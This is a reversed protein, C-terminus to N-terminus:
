TEVVDISTVKGGVRNITSTLTQIVTGVEDHQNEVIEVVVGASRSIATSRILIGTVPVTRVELATVVSGDGGRIIETVSTEALGHVMSDITEHYESDAGINVFNTGTTVIIGSGATILGRGPFYGDFTTTLETDDRGTTGTIVVDVFFDNFEKEAIFDEDVAQDEHIRTRIM